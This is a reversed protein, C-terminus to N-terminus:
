SVPSQHNTDCWSLICLHAMAQLTFPALDEGTLVPAQKIGIM